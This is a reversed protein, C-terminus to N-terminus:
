AFVFYGITSACPMAPKSSSKPTYSYQYPMGLASRSLPAVTKTVSTLWNLEVCTRPSCSRACTSSITAIVPLGLTFRM